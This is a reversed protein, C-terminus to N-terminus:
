NETKRVYIKNDEIKYVEIPTHAAIIGGESSVEYKEDGFLANGMPRLESITIGGAGVKVLDEDITNMKGDLEDKLALRKWAGSKLSYYVILTTSILTTVASIHGATTGYLKYVEFVGFGMMGFALIGLIGGPVVLLELVLLAIGLLILLIIVAINM